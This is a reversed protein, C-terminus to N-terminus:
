KRYPKVIVKVEASYKGNRVTIKTRGIGQAKVKGESAVTVIKEDSSTYTTGNASSTIEREIGDSYTGGVGFSKTEFIRMKNSDTGPPLKYLFIVKPDVDIGKLVVDSPLVVTIEVKVEISTNNTLKAIAVITDNGIFDKDIVFEYTYPPTFFGTGKGLKQVAIFLANINEGQGAEVKVVVTDSPYYVTMPKPETITLGWCVSSVSILSLFQFLLIRLIQRM